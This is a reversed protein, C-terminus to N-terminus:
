NGVRARLRAVARSHMQCVRSETVGFVAAIERFNLDEEYYLGMLQREREPLAEIAAVLDGRIRREEAIAQPECAPDARQRSLAEGEVTEELGELSVIQGGRAEALLARYEPLTVGLERAAERELPRRGLRQELSQLVADLERQLRRVSRPAWDNQRLEDLMAGRVRQTAFTEFQAGRDDRYRRAADMLGIMGAQVIDDLEVSAPLKSVLQRAIRNVLPAFRELLPHDEFPAAAATM